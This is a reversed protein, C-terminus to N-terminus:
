EDDLADAATAIADFVEAYDEAHIACARQLREDTEMARNVVNERFDRPLRPWEPMAMYAELSQMWRLCTDLMAKTRTNIPVKCAELAM